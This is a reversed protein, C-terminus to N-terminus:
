VSLLRPAVQKKRSMVGPLDIVGDTAASGFAQEAYGVDGAVVLRTGQALVDTLMVAFLRHSGRACEEQAAAILEATREEPVIGVTEVQAIAMSQGGGIDYSKADRSVLDAAPVSSVDSTSTFMDRGFAIPDIGVVEALREMAARDRPTTTPSNLIVTDSLLAALLIHATPKTPVIHHQDFRECVLTSTSGVPDFTAIVPQKTEISGIHHHDLIEVIEAEEVGPVSQAQEAHDVLLVRRALPRVLDARTVLGIPRRKEDVVVAARYSVDKVDDSVDAVLDDEGVTLPDGDVLARCPTSLTIMRGAVYSDLGTRIVPTDHEAALALLDDSPTVDNSLVLVGLDTSIARQQADPRDGVVAVDGPSVDALMTSVDMAVIWVRGTVLREPDGSLLTGDLTDVLAGVATASDLRSAQRTERVYRRALARETLVGVLVGDDDVVPLLDLGERVLDQGVARVPDLEHAVPFTRRMVDVVRLQVHELYQPVPAGSQQIAWTTQPNLDGLRVPVYENGDALANKLEAYGIAAAISDTDPNRHGTVYVRSL